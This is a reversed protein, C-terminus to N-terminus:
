KVAARADPKLPFPEDHFRYLVRQFRLVPLTSSAEDFLLPLCQKQLPLSVPHEAPDHGERLLHGRSVWEQKDQM